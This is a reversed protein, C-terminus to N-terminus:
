IHNPNQLDKDHKATWHKGCVATPLLRTLVVFVMLKHLEAMKASISSICFMRFICWFNGVLEMKEISVWFRPLSHLDSCSLRAVDRFFAVVVVHM